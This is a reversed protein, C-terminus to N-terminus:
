EDGGMKAIMEKLWIDVEGTDAFLERGVELMPYDSAKRLLKIQDVFLICHGLKSPCWIVKRGCGVVAHRTGMATFGVLIHPEEFLRRSESISVDGGRLEYSGPIVRSSFAINLFCLDFDQALSTLFTKYLQIDNSSALKPLEEITHGTMSAVCAEICNGEDGFLTQRVPSKIYKSAYEENGIQGIEEYIIRFGM